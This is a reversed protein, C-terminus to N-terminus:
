CDFFDDRRAGEDLREVGEVVPTRDLRRVVRADDRRAVQGCWREALHQATEERTQQM